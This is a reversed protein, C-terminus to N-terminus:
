LLRCKKFKVNLHPFFRKTKCLKDFHGDFIGSHNLQFVWRRDLGRLTRQRTCPSSRARLWQQRLVSTSIRSATWRCPTSGLCRQTKLNKAQPIVCLCCLHVFSCWYDYIIIWIFLMEFSFSHVSCLCSHLVGQVLLLSFCLLQQHVHLHPILTMKHAASHVPGAKQPESGTNDHM